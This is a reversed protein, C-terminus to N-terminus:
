LLGYSRTIGVVVLVQKTAQNPDTSKKFYRCSHSNSGVIALFFIRPILFSSDEIRITVSFSIVEVDHIKTFGFIVCCWPVKEFTSCAVYTFSYLQRKRFLRGRAKSTKAETSKNLTFFCQRDVAWKWLAEAAETTQCKFGLTHRRQEWEVQIVFLKGDYSIRYIICIKYKNHLILHFSKNISLKIFDFLM